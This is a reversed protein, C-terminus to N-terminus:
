ADSAGGEAAQKILTAVDLAGRDEAAEERLSWADIPTRALWVAAVFMHGDQIFGIRDIPYETPEPTLLQLFQGEGPMAEFQFDGSEYTEGFGEVRVFGRVKM